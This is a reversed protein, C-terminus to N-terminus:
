DDRLDKGTLSLFLDELRPRDITVEGMPVGHDALKKWFWIFNGNNLVETELTKTNKLPRWKEGHITVWEKLLEERQPIKETLSIRVPLNSLLEELTGRALIKGCDLIVLEDCLIEAEGLFHSTYLITMGDRNWDRLLELMRNRSQPDVGVTPEDLILLEPQHVVAIALNLRRAMGGSLQGSPQNGRDSLGVQDLLHSIWSAAGKQDLGYLNAFFALNEAASLEPYIALEQPVLGVKRRFDTEGQPLPDGKWFVSGQRPKHFGLLTRVLTTKGAGNPGLLGVIKGKKISLNLGKIVERSGHFVDLNRTEMISEHLSGIM